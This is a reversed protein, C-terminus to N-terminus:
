PTRSGTALWVRELPGTPEEATDLTYVWGPMHKFSIKGGREFELDPTDSPITVIRYLGQTMEAYGDSEADGSLAMKTHLRATIGAPASMTKSQYFASVGLTTQVVRRANAKVDAFDFAM